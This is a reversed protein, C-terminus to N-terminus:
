ESLVSLLVSLLLVLMMLVLLLAVLLLALLLLVLLSKAIRQKRNLYYNIDKNLNNVAISFM